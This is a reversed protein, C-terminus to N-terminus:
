RRVDSWAVYVSESFQDNHHHQHLVVRRLQELTPEVDHAREILKSEFARMIEAEAEAEHDHGHLHAIGHAIIKRFDSAEM